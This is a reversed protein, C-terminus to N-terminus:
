LRVNGPDNDDVTSLIGEGGNLSPRFALDQRGLSWEQEAHGSMEYEGTLRIADIPCVQECIGCFTCRLLEIHFDEPPAGESDSEPMKLHICQAPCSSVCLLCSNCRLSGDEKITLAPKGRFRDSYFYKEMPYDITLRKEIRLLLRFFHVASVKLALFFGRVPGYKSYFEKSIIM